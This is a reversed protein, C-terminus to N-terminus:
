PHTGFEGFRGSGDGFWGSGGGRVVGSGGRVVFGFIITYSELIQIICHYESNVSTYRVQRVAGFWGRVTRVHETNRTGHLM